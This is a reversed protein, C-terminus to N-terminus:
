PTARSPAGVAVRAREIAEKLKRQAEVVVLGLDPWGLRQGGIVLGDESGIHGFERGGCHGRCGLSSRRRDPRSVRRGSLCSPEWIFSCAARAASSRLSRREKTQFLKWVM